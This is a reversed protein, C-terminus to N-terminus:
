LPTNSNTDFIEQPRRSRDGVVCVIAKGAGQNVLSGSLLFPDYKKDAEDECHVPKKAVKNNLYNKVIHHAVANELKNEFQEKFVDLPREDVEIESGDILL